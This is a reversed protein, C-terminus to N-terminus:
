LQKNLESLKEQAEMCQRPDDHNNDAINVSMVGTQESIITASSAYGSAEEDDDSWQFLSRLLKLL